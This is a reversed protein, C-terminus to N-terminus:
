GLGFAIINPGFAQGNTVHVWEGFRHYGCDGSQPFSPLEAQSMSQCAHSGYGQHINVFLVFKM